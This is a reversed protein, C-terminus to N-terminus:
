QRTMSDKSNTKIRLNANQHPCPKSLKLQFYLMGVLILNLLTRNSKELNNASTVLSESLSLMWVIYINRSM